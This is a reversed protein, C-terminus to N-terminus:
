SGKVDVAAQYTITTDDAQACDAEAIDAYAVRGYVYCVYPSNDEPEQRVFPVSQSQESPVRIYKQPHDREYDHHCVVLGDWRTRVQDSKFRFGCVDCIVNWAGPKFYTKM